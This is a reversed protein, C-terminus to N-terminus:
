RGDAVWIFVEAYSYILALTRNTLIHCENEIQRGYMPDWKMQHMGGHHARVNSFLQMEETRNGREDAPLQCAIIVILVSDAHLKDHCSSAVVAAINAPICM